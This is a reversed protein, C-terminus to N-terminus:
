IHSYFVKSVLEKRIFNIRNNLQIQELRYTEYQRHIEQRQVEKQNFVERVQKLEEESMMVGPSELEHQLQNMQNVAEEYASQSSNLSSALQTRRETLQQIRNIVDREENSFSVLSSTLLRNSANM